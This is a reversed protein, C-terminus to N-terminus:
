QLRHYLTTMVLTTTNSVYHETKYTSVDGGKKHSIFLLQHIKYM